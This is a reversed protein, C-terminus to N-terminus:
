STTRSSRGTSWRRRGRGQRRQQVDHQADPDHRATDRPTKALVTGEVVKQGNRVELLARQPVYYAQRLQGCDDEIIIQPHLDGKHESIIWREQGTVTDKEKRFTKEEIIEEFRVTGAVEAVLPTDRSDTVDRFRDFRVVGGMRAKYSDERVDGKPVGGIHSTRMTLQTGPAGITRAAINPKKPIGQTTGCDHLTVVVNQAVDALKRTLYGSDATKLATDALGRRAGHTSSFYELVSLGEKFSAKIPMEVIITGSSAASTRGATTARTPSCRAPSRTAPRRGLRSARPTAIRRPRPKDVEKDTAAPFKFKNSPTRLDDTAFSLGSRTSEPSGTEKMRDLLDVTERRGLLEYCDAIIRALDKSTMPLDYFAV